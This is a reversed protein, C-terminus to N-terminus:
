MLNKLTRKYFLAGAHFLYNGIFPDCGDFTVRTVLDGNDLVIRESVYTICGKEFQEILCDAMDENLLVEAKNRM